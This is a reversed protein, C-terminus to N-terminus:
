IIPKRRDINSVVPTKCENCIIGVNMASRTAGCLCQPTINVTFNQFSNITVNDIVEDSVNSLDIKTEVSEYLDDLNIRMLEINSVGDIM